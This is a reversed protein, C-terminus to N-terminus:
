MILCSRDNKRLKIEKKTEVKFSSYPSNITSICKNAKIIKENNNEIKKIENEKKKEEKENEQIKTTKAIAKEEKTKRMIFVQKQIYEKEM